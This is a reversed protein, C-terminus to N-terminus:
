GSRRRAEGSHEGGQREARASLRGTPAARGAATGRRSGGAARPSATSRGCRGPRGPARGSRGRSRARGSQARGRIARGAAGADHAGLATVVRVVSSSTRNRNWSSAAGRRRAGSLADGLVGAHEGEFSSGCLATQSGSPRASSSRAAVGVPLTTSPTARSAIPVCGRRGRRGRRGARRRRRRARRGAARSAGGRGRAADPATSAAAQRTVAWCGTSTSLTWTSSGAGSAGCSGARTARDPDRAAQQGAIHEAATM